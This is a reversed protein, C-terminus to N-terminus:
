LLRAGATTWKNDGLDYTEVTNLKKMNSSGVIALVKDQYYTLAFALRSTNMSCVKSWEGSEASYVECKASSEM